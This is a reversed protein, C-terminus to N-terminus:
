NSASMAKNEDEGCWGGVWGGKFLYHILSVILKLELKKGELYHSKIGLESCRWSIYVSSAKPLICM